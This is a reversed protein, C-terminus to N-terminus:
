WAAGRGSALTLRAQRGHGRGGGDDLVEVEQEVRLPEAVVAGVPQLHRARLLGLPHDRADGRVPLEDGPGDRGVGLEEEDVVPQEPLEAREPEGGGEGRAQARQQAGVDREGRVVEREVRVLLDAVVREEGLREARGVV